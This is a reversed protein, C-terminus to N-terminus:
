SVIQSLIRAVRRSAGPEGLRSRVANLDAIMARRRAENKLLDELEAAIRRPEAATQIFEPVIKKGAVVNVLAIHPIKVLRRGIGYTLPAVRYAMVMPTGLIATELTATGSAVLSADSHAQLDHTQNQLLVVQDSVSDGRALIRQYFAVDVTPSCGIGAQLDPIRQSLIRYTEIFVPLLRKVEQFRSGPLLALLPRETNWRHQQYFAERSTATRSIELLPHGVFDTKLGVAEYLPVEFDFIVAIRDVLRAIKHVRSARWAWVQPSIYYLIPIDRLAPHRRLKAAFHLNFGPYDVLVVAKPKRTLAASLLKRTMRRIFPLHKIVEALGLFAVQEVSYILECGAASMNEGGVGFFRAEPHLARYEKLLGSSHLDGSVEGAIIM